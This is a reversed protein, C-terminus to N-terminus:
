RGRQRQQEEQQQRAKEQQEQRAQEQQRAREQQAQEQQRAREEQQRQREEQQQRAREQEQQRAQEQERQREEQQRQREEQQQRAREQAEAQQRAREEQQQRRAEEQQQQRAQEQQQRKMDDQQQRRANEEQQQQRAQEQQQRRANNDEQQQRAQEQQQRKMDDQQQRRANDEQQARAQEQRQRKAEEQQQQRNSNDEAQRRAQEQNTRAEEQQRRNQEMRDRANDAQQRRANEEAQGKDQQTQQRAQEQNDRRAQEMQQRRNGEDASGNAQAQRQETQEERQRRNEELRERRATQASDDAPQAQPQGPQQRAADQTRDRPPNDGVTAGNAAQQQRERIAALRDRGSPEQPTRGTPDAAQGERPEARDKAVIIAPKERSAPADGEKDGRRQTSLERLRDAAQRHRDAFSPKGEEAADKGAAVPRAADRIRVFKERRDETMEKQKAELKTQADAVKQRNAELQKQRDAAADGHERTWAVAQEQQKQRADRFRDKWEPKIANDARDIKVDDWKGAVKSPKLGSNWRTNLNPAFVALQNGRFFANRKEPDRKGDLRDLQIQYVPWPKGVLNRLKDYRPGGAIMEGRHYKLNTIDKTDKIVLGNRGPPLCHKWIPDAMHRCKVFIFWSSGIGFDAEVSSNWDHGRHCLTEPPLPAWGIHEGGERWCVWSPAWEDGPVWVWGRGPIHTWRGYHFCAWGFPEDSVWNWGRNTCTWSGHTYPRWSTDQVVVTPQYVYGYDPTEFWSGYPQLDDYFTGYDSVPEQAEEQPEPEWDDLSGTGALELERDSLNSERAALDGERDGLAIERQDIARQKEELSQDQADAEGERAALRAEREARLAEKEEELAAREEELRERELSM